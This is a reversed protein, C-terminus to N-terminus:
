KIKRTRLLFMDNESKHLEYIHRDDKGLSYYNKTFGKSGSFFKSLKIEEIAENLYIEKDHRHKETAPLSLLKKRLLDANSIGLDNLLKVASQYGQISLDFLLYLLNKETFQRTM